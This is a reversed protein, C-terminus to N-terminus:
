DNEGQLVYLCALEPFRLYRSWHFVVRHSSLSLPFLPFLSALSLFSPLLSPFSLFLPFLFLPLLSLSPFLFLYAFSPLVFSFTVTFSLPRTNYNGTKFKALECSLSVRSSCRVLYMLILCFCRVLLLTSFSCLKSPLPCM